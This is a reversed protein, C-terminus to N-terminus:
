KKVKIKKWRLVRLIIVRILRVVFSLIYLLLLCFADRPPNGGRWSTAPSPPSSAPPTSHGWARSLHHCETATSPTSRSAPACRGHAPMENRWTTTKTTISAMEQMGKSVARWGRLIYWGHPPLITRQTLFFHCEHFECEFPFSLNNYLFWSIWQLHWEPQRIEIKNAIGENWVQSTDVGNLDKGVNEIKNSELVGNSVCFSRENLEWSIRKSRTIWILLPAKRILGTHSSRKLSVITQYKSM